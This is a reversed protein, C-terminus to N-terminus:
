KKTFVVQYVRKTIESLKVQCDYQTLVLYNTGKEDTKNQMHELDTAILQNYYDRIATASDGFGKEITKNHYNMIASNVFKVSIYNDKGDAVRKPFEYYINTETALNAISVVDYITIGEKGVYSTFQSNFQNLQQEKKQEHMRASGSGFSAFLYVALSIIIIGILVSAAMLLAKSANEM